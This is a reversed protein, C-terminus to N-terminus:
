IFATAPELGLLYRGVTEYHAARAQLQQSVAHVDRFRREFPQSAFIATSGALEYAVDVVQKAEHTAHTAALRVAVRQGVELTGGDAVATWVEDLTQGLLARAAGLRAQARAVAAQVTPSQSIAQGAGRPTKGAAIDILAQLSTHALGLAVSGFSPGFLGSNSFQYLPGSELRRSPTVWIAFTEPVLVDDLTFSFSGTGRLGSVHWVDHLTARAVPLLLLREAPETGDLLMEGDPTYLNCIALLWTAHRVGSAFNWRGSLRYGDPTCVARGPTNGQGPGNAFIVRRGAGFVDAAASRDLYAAYASLGSAQGVCWAVSGDARALAEIVRAYSPLDLEAGGLSAPVLMSFLGAAYLADVLPAPLRRQAEIEDAAALIRPALEHAAELLVAGRAASPTEPPGSPASSLGARDHGLQQDVTM